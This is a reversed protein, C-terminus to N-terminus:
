SKRKGESALEERQRLHQVLLLRGARDQASNLQLLAPLPHGESFVAQYIRVGQSPRSRRVLGLVELTDLADSVVKYQYGLFRAIQEASTLSLHHRHLFVLVDWQALSSIGLKHLCGRVLLDLSNEQDM